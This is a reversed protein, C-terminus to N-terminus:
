CGREEILSDQDGERTVTCLCVLDETESTNWFGHPIESPVYIWSGSELDYTEEGVKFAGKGSLCVFWHEWPHHNDAAVGGPKLTFCRMVHTPWFRNPGFVIRKEGKLIHTGPDITPLDQIKGGYKGM